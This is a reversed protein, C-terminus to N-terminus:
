RSSVPEVRAWLVIPYSQVLSVKDQPDYGDRVFFRYSGDAPGAHLRDQSLLYTLTFQELDTANVSRKFAVLIVDTRYSGPPWRSSAATTNVTAEPRPTLLSRAELGAGIAVVLLACLVFPGAAGRLRLHISRGSPQTRM